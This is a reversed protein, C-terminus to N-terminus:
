FRYLLGMTGREMWIADAGSADSLGHADHSPFAAMERFDGRLAWRPSFDYTAGAGFNLAFMTESRDLQPMRDPDTNSLATLAGVGAVLYPSWTPSAAWDARLNAQYTLIDPNKLEQTQGSGADVSQKVPIMWGFEGEVALISTLRYGVSAVVPVNVFRDPVATDNENLVHFGGMVSAELPARGGGEALANKSVGAILLSLVAAMAVIRKQKM